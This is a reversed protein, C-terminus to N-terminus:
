SENLRRSEENIAGLVRHLRNFLESRLTKGSRPSEGPTPELIKCLTDIDRFKLFHLDCNEGGFEAHNRMGYLFGGQLGVSKCHHDYHQAALGQLFEVEALTLRIEASIEYQFKTVPQEERLLYAGDIFVVDPGLRPEPGRYAPRPQQAVVTVVKSEEAFQKMAEYTERLISKRSM